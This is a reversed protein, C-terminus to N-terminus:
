VEVRLSYYSVGREDRFRKNFRMSDTRQAHAWPKMAEETRPQRHSLDLSLSYM